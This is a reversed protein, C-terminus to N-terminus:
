TTTDLQNLLSETERRAKEPDDIWYEDLLPKLEYEVIEEYWKKFDDVKVTPTFFSHGIRYGRGLSHDDEIIKNLHNMNNQILSIQTPNFDYSALHESYSDEEFGPEIELFAFRRRLAYDVLSLSRDATNMTGILYVNKPVSFLEDSYALRATQGRKDNEVLLMLEGLIKSLNGRNIEDIIMVYKNDPDAMAQRCFTYFVGERLGFGGDEKPRIGQIFDEYSYSQHFQIMTTYRDSKENHLLWALRKALYTKGVGPAGQLIVNKKRYIQRILNNLRDESIFLEELADDISYAGYSPSSEEVSGATLDSTESELGPLNGIADAIFRMSADTPDMETLTKMPLLQGAPLKVRDCNEWEVPLQHHHPSRLTDFHYEGNVTGWGIVESRGLKALLVDGPKVDRSFNWLMTSNVSQNKEPIEEAMLEKLSDKNEFDALNGTFEWGISATSHQLWSEWLNANEGPSILWYKRENILAAKEEGKSKLPLGDALIKPRQAVDQILTMVDTRHHRQYPSSKGSRNRAIDGLVTQIDEKYTDYLELFDDEPFLVIGYAQDEIELAFSEEESLHQALPHNLPLVLQIFRSKSDGVIATIAWNGFNIRMLIQGRRKRLTTSLLDNPNESNTELVQIVESLYDLYPDAGENPFLQDFPKAYGQHSDAWANHSFEAISCDIRSTTETLWNQYDAANKPKRIGMQQTSGVNKGDAAVWKEPRFWYMGMTLKAIGIQKINLCRDMLSLNLDDPECDLIHLFFDWLSDIQDPARGDTAWPFFAVNMNNVLPVGEFDTPIESKLQLRDKTFDWLAQRKDDTIGRNFNAMFTFPDIQSYPTKEGEETPELFQLPMLGAEKMEQLLAVLEHSKNKFNRLTEALELHIPKWSFM